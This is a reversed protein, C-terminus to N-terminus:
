RSTTSAHSLRRLREALVSRGLEVDRKGSVADAAVDVDAVLETKSHSVIRNVKVGAGFDLDALTVNAPLNDGIIQLQAGKSGAKLAYSAVSILTPEHSARVLKVDFGFEQYEGWFWRGEATSQDPSIWLAERAESLLDDPKTARLRPGKPDGAGRIVQTSWVPGPGRSRPDM